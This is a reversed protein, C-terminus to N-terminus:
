KGSKLGDKTSGRPTYTATLTHVKETLAGWKTPNIMKTLMRMAISGVMVMDLDCSSIQPRAITSYKTGIISLVEIQDPVKIGSDTAANTIACALSDRPAIFYGTFDPENKFRTLMDLYLRQYSDDCDVLSFSKGKEACHARLSERLSDMMLGENDEELFIIKKGGRAFYADVAQFMPTKYDLPVSGTLEDECQQGIVIVPVDYKQLQSFEEPTLEDDYIVAGDVHTVILDEIEKEADQKVKKIPFLASHFGYTKAVTMMGSLMNSTYVYPNEPMLVGIDTTKSSALGRALASPRYNLEKIVKMVAAKTKETVNAHGNIVRSVTALSVNAQHAVQYITVRNKTNRGNISNSM